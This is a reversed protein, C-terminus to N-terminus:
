IEILTINNKELEYDIENGAYIFKKGSLNNDTIKTYPKLETNNLTLSVNFKPKNYYSIIREIIIHEPKDIINFPKYKLDVLLDNNIYTSSYCLKNYNEPFTCIKLEIEDAEEVYEDDIVNEYIMDSDKDKWDDYVSQENPIGYAVEIDRYYHFGDVRPPNNARFYIVTDISFLTLEIDGVITFDPAKFTYGEINGIGKDFTNTNKIPYYVNLTQNGEKIEIPM